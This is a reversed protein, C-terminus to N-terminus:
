QNEGSQTLLSALSKTGFGVQWATGQRKTILWEIVSTVPSVQQAASGDTPPYPQAHAERKRLGDVAVSMPFHCSLPQLIKESPFRNM